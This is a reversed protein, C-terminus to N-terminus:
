MKLRANKGMQQRDANSMNVFKDVAEILKKTNRTEFCFGTVGDEVTERCGARDPTM